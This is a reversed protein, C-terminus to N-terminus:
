AATRWLDLDFYAPLWEDRYAASFKEPLGALVTAARQPELDDLLWPLYRRADAGIKAAQTRGLRAWQEETLIDDMLPLGDTEEHALHGRLGTDLADVLGGLREPGRERDALADDIANLLPDITAHEAELAELLALDAPRGPLIEAMVPWLTEDEATHHAHLYSKFMEWGVATRLVRAPDDDARATIRAIRELERRLADHMVYMMSMNLKFTTASM